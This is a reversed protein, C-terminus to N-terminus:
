RTPATEPLTTTSNDSPDYRKMAGSPTAVYIPRDYHESFNRDADSFNESDYRPDPGGHTHWVAVDNSQPAGPDASDIDGPVPARPSFTGDSNEQVWGATETNSAVSGPNEHQMAAVAADEATAYKREYPTAASCNGVCGGANSNGDGSAPPTSPQEGSM